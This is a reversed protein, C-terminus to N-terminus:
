HHKIRVNIAKLALMIPNLESDELNVGIKYKNPTIMNSWIVRGKMYLQEGNDPMQLWIDLPADVPLEENTTLCIGQASIDKTEQLNIDGPLDINLYKLFIKVPFRTFSRRERSVPVEM